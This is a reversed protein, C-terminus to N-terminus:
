YGGGIEITFTTGLNSSTVSLEGKMHEEIIIKSMYLGLGTGKDKTTFYPDFIKSIVLNDIGHANDSINIIIHNSQFKVDINIIPTKIKDIVLADAANNILNLIVQFFENKYGSIFYPKNIDINFKIHNEELIAKIITRSKLISEEVSFNELVRQPSFFSRFDDITESMEELLLMSESVYDDVKENTLLKQRYFIGIKQIILSLSNLPQRWQHAINAIMEGMSVLKNQQILMINKQEVEKQLEYEHTIDRSVGVIGIVNGQTDILATKSTLVYLKEGKLTVWQKYVLKTKNKIIDQNIDFYSNATETDFFDFDSMGILDKEEINFYSLFKSNGGIYKHELNKYFIADEMSNEVSKLLEQKQYLNYNAEELEKANATLTKDLFQEEEEYNKYADEVLSLFKIFKEDQNNIDFDKGYIKKLQLNLLKHM